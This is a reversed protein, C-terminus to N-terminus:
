SAQMAVIREAVLRIVEEDIHLESPLTHAEIREDMLKLAKILKRRDWRREGKEWFCKVWPAIVRNKLDRGLTRLERAHFDKAISQMDENFVNKRIWLERIIDCQEQDWVTRNLYKLNGDPDPEVGPVVVRVLRRGLPPNPGFFYGQAARQRMGASTADSHAELWLDSMIGLMSVISRGMATSLDVEGGASSKGFKLDLVIVRVGLVNILHELANRQRLPRRDIRDLRWVILLDGRELERLLAQFQDRKEWGTATASEHETFCGKYEAGDNEDIVGRARDGIRESQADISLVQKDTSTRAYGFIRYKRAM